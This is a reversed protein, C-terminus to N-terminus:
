LFANKLCVWCLFALILSAVFSLISKIELNKEKPTDNKNVYNKAVENDTLNKYYDRGMHFFYFAMLGCAIAIIIFFILSTISSIFPFLPQGMLLPLLLDTVILLIIVIIGFFVTLTRKLEGEADQKFIIVFIWCAVFLVFLFKLLYAIAILM